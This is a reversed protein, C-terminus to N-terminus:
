EVTVDLVVRKQGAVRRAVSEVKDREAQTAVMGSVTVEDNAANVRVNKAKSSLTTDRSLEDRINQAMKNDVASTQGMGIPRESETTTKTTTSKSTGPNAMASFGIMSTAALLSIFTKKM